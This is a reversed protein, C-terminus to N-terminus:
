ERIKRIRKPLLVSFKCNELYKGIESIIGRAHTGRKLLVLNELFGYREISVIDQLHGTRVLAKKFQGKTEGCMYLGEINEKLVKEFIKLTELAIEGQINRQESDIEVVNIYIPFNEIFDYAHIIERVSVHNDNALQERLIHLPLLVDTSQRIIGCDIFIGFGVEGVDKITGKLIDGEKVQDFPIATGIEASIMNKVFKEEPGQIFIEIREDIQRIQRIEITTNSFGKVIENLYKKYRNQLDLREKRSDANYIKDLLILRKVM